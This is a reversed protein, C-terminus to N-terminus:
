ALSIPTHPNVWVTISAGKDLVKFPRRINICVNNALVVRMSSDLVTVKFQGYKDQM